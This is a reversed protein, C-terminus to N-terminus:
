PVTLRKLGIGEVFAVEGTDPNVVVWILERLYQPSEGFEIDVRSYLEASEPVGEPIGEEVCEYDLMSVSAAHHNRWEIAAWGLSVEYYGYNERAAAAEPTNLAIEIVKEKEADTLWRLSDIGDPHGACGYALLLAIVLVAILLLGKRM